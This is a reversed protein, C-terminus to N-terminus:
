CTVNNKRKNRLDEMIKENNVKENLMNYKLM